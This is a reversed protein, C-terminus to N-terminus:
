VMLSPDDGRGAARNIRSEATKSRAANTTEIERAINILMDEINALVDTGPKSFLEFVHRESKQGARSTHKITSRKNNINHEDRMRHGLHSYATGLTEIPFAVRFMNSSESFRIEPVTNLSAMQSQAYALLGGIDCQRQSDHVPGDIVSNWKIRIKEFTEADMKEVPIYLQDNAHKADESDSLGLQEPAIGSLLLAARALRADNLQTFHIGIGKPTKEIRYEKGIM